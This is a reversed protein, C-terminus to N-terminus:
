WIHLYTRVAASSDVDKRVEANGNNQGQPLVAVMEGPQLVVMTQRQELVAVILGPQLVIM